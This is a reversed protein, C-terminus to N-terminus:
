ISAREPSLGNKPNKRRNLLKDLGRMAGEADGALIQGKLGKYEQWNLRNRSAKLRALARPDIRPLTDM